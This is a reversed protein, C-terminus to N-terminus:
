RSCGVGIFVTMLALFMFSLSALERRESATLAIV